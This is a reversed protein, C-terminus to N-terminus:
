TFTPLPPRGDSNEAFKKENGKGMKKSRKSFLRHRRAPAICGTKKRGKGTEVPNNGIKKGTYLDTDDNFPRPGRRGPKRSLLDTGWIPVEGKKNKSLTERGKEGTKHTLTKKTV